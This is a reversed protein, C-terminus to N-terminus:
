NMLHSWRDILLLRMPRYAIIQEAGSCGRRYSVAFSQSEKISGDKMKREENETDLM